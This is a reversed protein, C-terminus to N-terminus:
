AMDRSKFCAFQQRTWTSECPGTGPQRRRTCSTAGAGFLLRRPCLFLAYMKSFRHLFMNKQTRKQPGMPRICHILPGFKAAVIHVSKKGRSAAPTRIKPSVRM